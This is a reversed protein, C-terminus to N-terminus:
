PSKELQTLSQSVVTYRPEASLYDLACLASINSSLNVDDQQTASQLNYIDVLSVHNDVDCHYRPPSQKYAGQNPLYFEYERANKPGKHNALVKEEDYSRPVLIDPQIGHYQYSGSIPLDVYATTLVLGADKYSQFTFKKHTQMTAKGYTPGDGIIIARKYDKLVGAFVEAASASFNNILVAIPLDTLQTEEDGTHLGEEKSVTKMLLKQKTLDDLLGLVAKKSGGPNYYLDIIIATLKDGTLNQMTKLARQFDDRTHDSFRSIAIYAISDNFIYAEVSATQVPQKEFVIPTELKTGSRRVHCSFRDLSEFLDRAGDLGLRSVKKGNISTIIDGLLLGAKAAASDKALEMVKLGRRTYQASIGIQDVKDDLTQLFKKEAGADFFAAHPDYKTVMLHIDNAVSKYIETEKYDKTPDLKKLFSSYSYGQMLQELSIQSVHHQSFLKAVEYLKQHADSAISQESATLGQINNLYNQQYSAAFDDQLNLTIKQSPAKFQLGDKADDYENSLAVNGLLQAAFFAGAISGLSRHNRRSMEGEM